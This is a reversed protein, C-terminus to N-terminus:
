SGPLGPLRDRYFSGRPQVGFGDNTVIGIFSTMSVRFGNGGPIMTVNVELRAQFKLLRPKPFM